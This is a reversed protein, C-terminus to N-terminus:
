PCAPPSGSGTQLWSFIMGCDANTLSTRGSHQTAGNATGSATCFIDVFVGSPAVYDDVRPNCSLTVRNNEVNAEAAGPSTFLAVSNIGTPPVHCGAQGCMARTSELASQVGAFEIPNPTASPVPTGTGSPEPEPTPTPAVAGDGMEVENAGCGVAVLLSSLLALKRIWM